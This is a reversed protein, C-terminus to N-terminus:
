WPYLSAPRVSDTSYSPELLLPSWMVCYNARMQWTDAQQYAARSVCPETIRLCWHPGWRGPLARREASGCMGNNEDDCFYTFIRFFHWGGWKYLLLCIGFLPITHWLWTDGTVLKPCKTETFKPVQQILWIWGKPSQIDKYAYKIGVNPATLQTGAELLDLCGDSYRRGGSDGWRPLKQWQTLLPTLMRPHSLRWWATSWM